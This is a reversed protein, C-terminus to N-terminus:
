LERPPNSCKAITPSNCGISFKFYCNAVIPPPTRWSPLFCGIDLEFSYNEAHLQPTQWPRLVCDRALEFSYNKNLKCLHYFVSWPLNLATTKATSLKGHHYPVTRLLSLATTQQASNVMTTPFLKFKGHHYPVTRLLNLATTQQTSNVM